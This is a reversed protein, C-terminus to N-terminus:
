INILCSKFVNEFVYIVLNIFKGYSLMCFFKSYKMWIYCLCYDMEKNLFNYSIGFGEGFM